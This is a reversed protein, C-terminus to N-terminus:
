VAVVISNGCQEVAAINIIYLVVINVVVVTVRYLHAVLGRVQTAARQHHQILCVPHELQAELVLHAGNHIGYSWVFLYTTPTHIYYYSHIYTHIYTLPYSYEETYTFYMLSIYVTYIHIIYM